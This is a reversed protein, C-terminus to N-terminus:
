NLLKDHKQLVRRVKASSMKIVRSLYSYTLEGEYKRYLKFMKILKEIPIKRDVREESYENLALSLSKKDEELSYARQTLLNLLGKRSNDIEQNRQLRRKKMYNNITKTSIEEIEAIQKISCGQKILDERSANIKLPYHTLRTEYSLTLPIQEQRGYIYVTFPSLKIRKAIEEASTVGKEFLHRIKRKNTKQKLKM